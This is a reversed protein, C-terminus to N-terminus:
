YMVKYKRFMVKNHVKNDISAIKFGVWTLNVTKVSDHHIALVMYLTALVTVMAINTGMCTLLM